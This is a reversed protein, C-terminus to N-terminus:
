ANLRDERLGPTWCRWGKLLPLYLGVSIPRHEINAMLRAYRELQPAYREQERDLFDDRSAGEHRGSKYDVIWRVGDADVFTRDIYVSVVRGDLVGSLALENEAERHGASLIWQGTPDALVSTLADLVTEVSDQLQADSMGEAALARRVSPATERIRAASWRDAGEEAILRLRDHVVTGVQRVSFGAWEFIIPESADEAPGAAFLPRAGVPPAPQPLVWASPLRWSGPPGDEM